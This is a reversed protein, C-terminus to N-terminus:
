AAKKNIITTPDFESLKRNLEQDSEFRDNIVEEAKEDLKVLKGDLLLSKLQADTAKEKIFRLLTRKASNDIGSSMVVAATFLRIKKDM